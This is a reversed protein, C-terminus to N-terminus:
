VTRREMTSALLSITREVEDTIMEWTMRFTAFGRSLAEADRRADRERDRQREHWSRSDLEGILRWAVWFLDVTAGWPMQVQREPIALGSPRIREWFLREMVSMSGGPLHRSTVIRHVAARGAVGQGPSEDLLRELAELPCRNAAVTMDIVRDLLRPDLAAGLDILTQPVTTVRIGHLYLSRPMTTREHILLDFPRVRSRGTTSLEVPGRLLRRQEPRSIYLGPLEHLLGATRHSAVSNPVALLAAMTRARLERPAPGFSVVSRGLPTWRGSRFRQNLMGRTFGLELLQTRTALGHQQAALAAAAAEDFM